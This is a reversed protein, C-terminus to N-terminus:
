EKIKAAVAVLAAGTTIILPVQVTVGELSIVTFASVPLIITVPVKLLAQPLTTVGGGTSGGGTSIGV